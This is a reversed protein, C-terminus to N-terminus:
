RLERVRAALARLVTSEFGTAELWRLVPAAADADRAALAAELLIRADAAERQEVWNERALALARPVDGEIALAFRSEEKRHSTDGRQRAADFRARLEAAHAAAGADGTAKAALALRLLLVDARGRGQLLVLVEAARGQDLLFDAHAAQLYVDPLGLAQAERFAAEAAAADGRREEIEALRTLSWLREPASAQPHDRLAARLSAAATAARGTAADVQAACAAASLPTTFPALQRCSARAGEYDARVMLIATRWAGAEVHDPAARLVADLDALAEDFRHDFQLLIARLLRVPPPPDSLGLWPQLAAQAQGIYRPDGQAAVEDYYRQALRVALALNQPDQRLQQRLAHLERARPDSSRAPVRELVQTDDTPTYPAAAVLTPLCLCLLFQPRRFV